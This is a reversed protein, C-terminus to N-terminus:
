KRGFSWGYPKWLKTCGWGVIDVRDGRGLHEAAQTRRHLLM